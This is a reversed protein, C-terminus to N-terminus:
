GRRTIEAAIEDVVLRMERRVDDSLRDLPRDVFGRRVRQAVWRERNGWVPHRLVGRNITRVDRKDRKGKAWIRLTVQAQGRRERTSQRYRVSKAMIPGYGSPLLRQAEAPIAKRVPQTARTLGRSLRRSMRKDDIRRLARRLQTLDGAVVNVDFGM